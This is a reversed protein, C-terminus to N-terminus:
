RFSYILFQEAMVDEEEEGCLCGAIIELLGDINENIERLLREPAVVILCADAPWRKGVFRQLLQVQEGPNSELFWCLDETYRLRM